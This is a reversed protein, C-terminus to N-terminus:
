LDLPEMQGGDVLERLARECGAWRRGQADYFSIVPPEACDHWTCVGQASKAGPAYLAPDYPIATLLISDEEQIVSARDPPPGPVLEIEGDTKTAWLSWRAGNAVLWVLVPGAETLNSLERWKRGANSNLDRGPDAAFALWSRVLKELSDSGTVRAKAEIAVVARGTEDYALADFEGREFDIDEHPWGHDLVLEATAGIQVVYELNVSMGSRDKSFLAYRGAPTKPRVKPLTVYGAPDVVAFGAEQTRLFSAAEDGLLGRRPSSIETHDVGLKVRQFGPARDRLLSWLRDAGVEDAARPASAAIEDELWTEDIM